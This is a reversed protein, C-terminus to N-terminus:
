ERDMAALWDRVKGRAIQYRLVYYILKEYEDRVYYRGRWGTWWRRQLNTMEFPVPAMQVEITKGLVRKFAWRARRMHFPDSVVIVSRVPKPSGAIWAKLKEAEAYTSTISSGDYAIADAPVGQAMSREQGHQGHHYRHKECLGGTFFLLKGKGQKFLQVAYDTRYDDGAIVHIVDAPHLDDRVILFDGLALLWQARFLFLLIGGLLVLAILISKKSHFFRDLLKRMM